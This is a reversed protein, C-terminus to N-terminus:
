EGESKKAPFVRMLLKITGFFLILVAFVSGVGVGMLKLAQAIMENVTMDM